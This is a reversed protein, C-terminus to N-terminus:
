CRNLPATMHDTCQKGLFDLQQSAIMNGVRPIDYFMQRVHENHIREVKVQMISVRLICWINRHLFVKLKNSLAKWMSWTKCRWLLLNMPITRFFLYKSWINLPPSNWVKKLAGM